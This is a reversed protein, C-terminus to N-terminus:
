IIPQAALHRKSLGWIIAHSKVHSNTLLGPGSILSGATPIARKRAIHSELNIKLHGQLITCSISYIATNRASFQIEIVDLRKSYSQTVGCDRNCTSQQSCRNNDGTSQWNGNKVFPDWGFGPYSSGFVIAYRLTQSM